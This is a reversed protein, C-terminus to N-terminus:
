QNQQTHTTFPIFVNGDCGFGSSSDMWDSSQGSHEEKATHNPEITGKYSNYQNDAYIPDRSNLTKSYQHCDIATTDNERMMVANTFHPTSWSQISRTTLNNDAKVQDNEQDAGQSAIWAQRGSETTALLQPAANEHTGFQGNCESEDQRQAQNDDKYIAKMPRLLKHNYHLIRENSHVAQKNLQTFDVCSPALTMPEDEFPQQQGITL